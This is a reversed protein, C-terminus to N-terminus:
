SKVEDFACQETYGWWFPVTDNTLASLTGMPIHVNLINDALYGVSGIFGHLLDRNMPVKWNIVTDVKNSDIQIGQDDIVCGLLKLSPAIFRLKSSSLYLKEWLLIDLVLKVHQIHEELSDPYIIIDDLYIDMFHGIYSSFLHNMLAQYTAPTNCDGMQLVQSVMNGDPTTVTSCHVHGPVIQIQEYASKLDLAIRFQKRATHRLMGEMDPLPSMLKLMNKNQEQLDVVTWLLPPNTGPKPISLMPVANGVSTIKWCESKIYADCKEAWQMQFAEPCRSPHWSYIKAENILLITHNNICFPPLETEDVEKCLPKQLSLM